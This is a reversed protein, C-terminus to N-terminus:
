GGLSTALWPLALMAVSLVVCLCIMMPKAVLVCLLVLWLGVCTCLWLALCVGVIYWSLLRLLDCLDFLCDNM